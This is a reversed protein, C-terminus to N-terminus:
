SSPSRAEPAPQGELMSAVRAAEEMKDQRYAALFLCFAHWVPPQSNLMLARRAYTEGESFKGQYILRCGFDAVVDSSNPNLAVAKAGEEIALDFNERAWQVEMMAQRTGASEPKLAVARKAMTLAQTLEEDATGGQKTRFNAVHMYALMMYAVHNGPKRTILDALCARVPEVGERVPNQFWEYRLAPLAPGAHAESREDGACLARRLAPRHDLRTEPHLRATRLQRDFDEPVTFRNSWVIQGSRGRVLRVTGLVSSPLGTFVLDLRYDTDALPRNEVPAMVVFEDFKSLNTEVGKAFLEPSFWGPVQRELAASVIIAPMGLPNAETPPPEWFYSDLEARISPMAFWVLLAAAVAAVAAYLGLPRKVPRRETDRAPPTQLAAPAAPQVAEPMIFQPVYNGVALEIRLSPDANPSSYYAIM